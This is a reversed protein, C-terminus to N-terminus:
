RPVVKFGGIAIIACARDAAGCAQLAGDMAAQESPAKVAVGTKGAAGAAM